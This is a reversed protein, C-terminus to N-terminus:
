IMAAAFRPIEFTKGHLHDAMLNAVWEHSSSSELVRVFRRDGTSTVEYKEIRVTVDRPEGHPMVVLEITKGVSDIELSKLEAYRSIRSRLWEQAARSSAWDKAKAFM